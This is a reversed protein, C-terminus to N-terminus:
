PPSAQAERARRHADLRAHASYRAGHDEWTSHEEVWRMWLVQQRPSLTDLDGFLIAHIPQELADPIRGESTLGPATAWTRTKSPTVHIALHLAGTWETGPAHHIEIHDRVLTSIQGQRHQLRAKCDPLLRLTGRNKAAHRALIVGGIWIPSPLGVLVLTWLLPSMGGVGGIFLSILGVLMLALSVLAM